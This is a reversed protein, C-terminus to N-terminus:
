NLPGRDAKAREHEVSGVAYHNTPTVISGRGRTEADRMALDWLAQGKMASGLMLHTIGWVLADLRDPSKPGVYGHAAMNILQEELVPFSGVHHVRGKEYLASVPEARVAKGRSAHVVTVPVNPDTTKIVHEVMAGGFNTEAVIGDARFDDYARVAVRGWGAPDTRLSRDALVYAAGDVGLGVVVIGIEDSRQDERGSCGSPDVAVVVRKLAPILGLKLWHDYESLDPVLIRNRDLIDLTWLAGEIEPSWEGDRFRRRQKEPLNELTDLYTSAINAQNDFPNLQMEAYDAPNVPRGSEPDKHEKWLKYTFHSTGSPNCDFYEKPTLGAIQQALRTRALLISGYPIQSCENYFISAFEMGLIKEAQEQDQLGGVWIESGNPFEIYSDQKHWRVKMGPYCLRLVKPLTDLWITSKAANARFRLIAHRSGAGRVARMVLARVILFTKGSRSGGRLLVHRAPSALLRNAQEQKATLKFSPM